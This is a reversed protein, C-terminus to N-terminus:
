GWHAGDRLARVTRAGSHCLLLGLLGLSLWGLAGGGGGSGGGSVTVTVAPPLTVNLTITAAASNALGDNALFLFNDTGSFGSQATYVINPATGGLTGGAPSSTVTFTLANGDADSGSLTINVSQGTQVSVSQPNAVPPTNPPLITISVTATASSLQGDSVRFQFSDAGTVGSGPTYTLNPATGTLTGRAPNSVISYSLASGDADSGTLAIVTPRGAPVTVSQANAVPPHNIATINLTVTAPTSMSTGDSVQFTFSDTATVNAGATYTFTVGSSGVLAAPAVLTGRTPPSVIFYALTTSDPDSGRLTIQRPTDGAVTVTQALAIPPTNAVSSSDPCRASPWGMDQLACGTLDTLGQPNATINPEMLLNPFAVSDWHSLSSGDAWTSPAYLRLHGGPNSLGTTSTYGALNNNVSAGNYVLKGSNVSASAREADTMAPWFKGLTESYVFQEFGTFQGPAPSAGNSDTLTLFGLGHGIEHLLVNLLDINTGNNHDFGLYFSRGGLCSSTSGVTSSITVRIDTSGRGSGYVNNRESLADALAAPLLVNPANNLTFYTTPGASALTGGTSTCTKPAMQAEIVIDQTSAIRLGWVRGAEAIVNLRAQGLTTAENGGVPTFPNTDSLSFAGTASDLNVISFTAAAAAGPLALVGFLMSARIAGPSM